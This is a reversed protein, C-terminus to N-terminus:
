HYYCVDFSTLLYLFRLVYTVMLKNFAVMGINEDIFHQSSHIIHEAKRFLADSKRKGPIMNKPKYPM